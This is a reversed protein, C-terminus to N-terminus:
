AKDVPRSAGQLGQGQAATPEGETSVAEVRFARAQTAGDFAWRGRLVVRRHNLATISEFGGALNESLELPYSNGLDDELTLLIRDGPMGHLEDGWTITLRGSLSTQGQAAQAAEHATGRDVIVWALGFAIQICLVLLIVLVRGRPTTETRVRPGGRYGMGDSFSVKM